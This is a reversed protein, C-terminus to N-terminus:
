LTMCGSKKIKERDEPSALLGMKLVKFPATDATGM